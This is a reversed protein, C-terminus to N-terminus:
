AAGKEMLTKDLAAIAPSGALLNKGAIFQEYVKGYDQAMREVTFRQELSERCRRRELKSVMALSSMMQNLDECIM